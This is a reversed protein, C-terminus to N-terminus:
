RTVESKRLFKDDGYPSIELRKCLLKVQKPSLGTEEYEALRHAVKQWLENYGYIILDKISYLGEQDDPVSFYIEDLGDDVRITLRNM